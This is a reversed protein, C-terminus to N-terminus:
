TAAGQDPGDDLGKLFEEVEAGIEEASPVNSRSTIERHSMYEEYQGELKSVVQQAEISAAVQQEITQRVAQSSQTLAGDSPLALGSVSSAQQLLAIAAEPYAAEAVYYPVHAALGIVDKGHEGLRLTLLGIFPSSMQFTGPLGTRDGLLRPDSAFGSIHVPRTHPTPAPVSQLILVRGMEFGDMVHEISTIMREWQLAPEPGSLWFFGAGADDTVKRLAIEPMQYDTFHDRDFIIPPRHGAYDYLQDIDFTGVKHNALRDSLQTGILEQAEGADGYGGLTILLTPREGDTAPCEDADLHPELNFLEAPDLM